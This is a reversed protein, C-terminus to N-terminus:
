SGHPWRSGPDQTLSILTPPPSLAPPTRLPSTLEHPDEVPSSPLLALVAILSLVVFLAM